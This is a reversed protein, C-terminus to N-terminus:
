VLDEMFVSALWSWRALLGEDCRWGGGQLDESNQSRGQGESTPLWPASLGRVKQGFTSLVLWIHLLQKILRNPPSSSCSSAQAADTRLKM